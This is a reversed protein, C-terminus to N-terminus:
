IAKVKGSLIDEVSVSNEPLDDIIDVSSKQDVPADISNKSFEVFSVSLGKKTIEEVSKRTQLKAPSQLKNLRSYIRYKSEDGRFWKNIVLSETSGEPLDSVKVGDESLSKKLGDLSEKSLKPSKKIKSIHGYTKSLKEQAFKEAAERSSFHNSHGSAGGFRCKDNAHCEHVEGRKNIHYKM